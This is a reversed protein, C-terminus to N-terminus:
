VCCDTRTELFERLIPHFPHLVCPCPAAPRWWACCPSSSARPYAHAYPGAVCPTIANTWWARPYPLLPSPNAHTALRNSSSLKIWFEALITQPWLENAHLM